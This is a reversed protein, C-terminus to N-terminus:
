KDKLEKESMFFNYLPRPFPWSGEQFENREHMIGLYLIISRLVRYLETGTEQLTEETIKLSNGEGLPSRLDEATKLLNNRAGGLCDMYLDYVAHLSPSHKLKWEDRVQGREHFLSLLTGSDGKLGKLDWYTILYDRVANWIDWGHLYANRLLYYEMSGAAYATLGPKPNGPDAYNRGRGDQVANIM